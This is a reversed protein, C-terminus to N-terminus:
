RFDEAWRRDKRRRAGLSNWHQDNIGKLLPACCCYVWRGRRIETHRKLTCTDLLRAGARRSYRTLPDRDLGRDLTAEAM